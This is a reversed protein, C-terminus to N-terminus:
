SLDNDIVWLMAASRSNVGLKSYISALHTNVTRPSIILREAIQNYSLGQALLRLVTLERETLDAPYKGPARRAPLAVTQQPVTSRTSSVDTEQFAAEIAEEFSMNRGEAWGAAFTDDGLEARVKNISREYRAREMMSLFVGFSERLAEAAGWLHVAQRPRGQEGACWALGALCDAIERGQDGLDRYMRLSEQLLEQAKTYHEQMLALHGLNNLSLALLFNHGLARHLRASEEMMTQARLYEGNYTAVVALNGLSVAVQVEDGLERLLALAEELYHSATDLDAEDAVQRAMLALVRAIRRKDGVERSLALNEQNLQKALTNDGRNLALLSAGYLADSRLVSRSMSSKDLIAELFASGEALHGRMNWFKWLHGALRLTTEAYGANLCRELAARLNDYEAAALMLVGEVESGPIKQAAIDLLSLYYQAHTLVLVDHEGRAELQEWAYERITEMMKLRLEDDPAEEQQLLSKDLLSAVGDFPDIPLDGEANCVAEIAALTPSGVFVALRAFLIQEGADLSTYSWDITNRLTQQRAPLDRAGGTLLKLRSSLRGLLAEPTLIKIRAAALEIALPLGDLRVCIEAVALANTTTIQFNPKVSQARQIFLAVAEYQSLSELQPLQKPNPLALSPVPYEHEGSIHLPIRSTVLVTLQPAAGLLQAVFPAAELVQEFNDLILLMFKDHLHQKLTDLLPTTGVEQVELVHAITSAVLDPDSITALAVFYTGDPFTALMDNALQLALRTKGIGGPGTLTVLRIQSNVLRERVAAVERERGIFSSIQPPLDAM